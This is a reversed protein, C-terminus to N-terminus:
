GKRFGFASFALAAWGAIFLLGGLPVIKANGQFGQMVQVYVGGSFCVIGGLFALAAINLMWASWGNRRGETAAILVAVGFLALAHLAHYLQGTEYIKVAVPAAGADRLAHAGYAGAVVALGGAVGAIFLWFRYLVLVGM